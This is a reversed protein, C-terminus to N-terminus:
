PYFWPTKTWAMVRVRDPDAQGELFAFPDETQLLFPTVPGMTVSFSLAQFVHQAAMADDTEAACSAERDARYVHVVYHHRGKPPRKVHLTEIFGSPLGDCGIVDLIQIAERGVSKGICAMFLQRVAKRFPNFQHPKVAWEGRMKEM